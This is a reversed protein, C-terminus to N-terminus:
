QWKPFLQSILCYHCNQLYKLVYLSHFNWQHITSVIFLNIKPRVQFKLNNKFFEWSLIWFFFSSFQFQILRLFIILHNIIKNDLDFWFCLYGYNFQFEYNNSSNMDKYEFSFRTDSYFGLFFWVDLSNHSLIFISLVKIKVM